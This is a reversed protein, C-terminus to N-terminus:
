ILKVLTDEWTDFFFPPRDSLKGNDRIKIENTLTVLQDEISKRQVFILNVDSENKLIKEKRALRIGNLLHDSHTEVLVQVGCSVAKSIMQGLRVQASPHLHAEPNEVLILDGVKAKLLATVVPLVFSLGFGVQLASFHEWVDDFGYELKITQPDTAHTYTAMKVNMIWSMWANVNNILQKDIANPVTEKFQMNEIGIIENKQLSQYLYAPTLEGQIGLQTNYAKDSLTRYESRPGVREATLFEMTDFFLSLTKYDDGEYTCSPNTGTPDQADITWTHCGKDTEVSVIVNRVSAMAYCLVNSNELNVLHGNLRIQKEEKNLYEVDYSQKLMLLSQLISSKGMGNIGAILTLPAINFEEEEYAKFNTLSIKQIMYKYIQELEIELIM